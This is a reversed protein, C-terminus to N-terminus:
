FDLAESSDQESDFTLSYHIPKQKTVAIIDAAFDKTQRAFQKQNYKEPVLIEIKVSGFRCGLCTNSEMALWKLASTDSIELYGKKALPSRMKQSSANAKKLVGTSL